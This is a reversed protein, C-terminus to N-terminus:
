CLMQHTDEEGWAPPGGLHPSILLASPGQPLAPGKASRPPQHLLRDGDAGPPTEEPKELGQQFNPPLFSAHLEPFTPPPNASGLSPARLHLGGEGGGRSTSPLPLGTSICVPRPKHCCKSFTLHNNLQAWSQSIKAATTLHIVYSNLM